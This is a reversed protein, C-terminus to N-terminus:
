RALRSPLGGVDKLIRAQSVGGVVGPMWVKPPQIYGIFNIKGHPLTQSRAFHSTPKDTYMLIM